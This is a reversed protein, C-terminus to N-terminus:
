QVVSTNGDEMLKPTENLSENDAAEESLGSSEPIRTFIDASFSDIIDAVDEAFQDYVEDPANYTFIYAYEDILTWAKLVRFTVGESELSYVIAHAPVENITIDSETLIQLDPMENLSGLAAQSYEELTVDQGAPLEENQLLLYVAANDVDEGPALFGVIMGQDNPEAEQEIWDAPYYLELGYDFNEYYLWEDLDSLALAGSTNLPESQAQISGNLSAEDSGYACGLLTLNM